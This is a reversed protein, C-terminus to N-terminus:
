CFLLFLFSIITIIFNRKKSRKKKTLLDLKTLLKFIEVELRHHNYIKPNITNFVESIKGCNITQVNQHNSSSNKINKNINKNIKTTENSDNLSKISKNMKSQYEM